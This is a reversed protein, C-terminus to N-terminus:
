DEAVRAHYHGDYDVIFHGNKNGREYVYLAVLGMTMRWNIEICPCMTGDSCLMMDVGVPGEYAFTSLYRLWWQRIRQLALPSLWSAIRAEKEEESALLNGLYAGRANTDFLSLGLYRVSGHGDCWFEMAFDQDRSLLREVVVGGQQRLIRQAWAQANPSSVPMLGKGSSSWPAKMLASPWQQLAKALEEEHQCLLSEGALPVDELGDQRIAHLAEVATQRHSLMRLLAIEDPSPLLSSPVGAQRLQHVLAPSWGWPRIRDGPQLSLPALGDWVMDQPEAWLRPLEWLERRMQRASAPATYGPQGSALALDNEPNFIHLIM